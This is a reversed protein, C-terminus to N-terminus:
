PHVEMNDILRVEGFRVAVFARASTSEHWRYMPSLTASDAVELYELECKGSQRIRNRGWEALEDPNMLDKLDKLETLTKYLLEADKRQAETLRTNRSSMALGSQERIIPCPIIDIPLEYQKVMERIIALQQFDKEGFCAMDPQVLQFLRYVVEVVGNFHGPRSTGEMVSDLGDYAITIAEHEEPYVEDMVPIYILDCGYQELMLIDKNETRPYNELDKSDTFQTPNVFISCVVAVEEGKALEILSMHGAHLAGMTPVFAIRKGQNRLKQLEIRLETLSHVVCPKESTM